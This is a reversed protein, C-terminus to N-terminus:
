WFDVAFPLEVTTKRAHAIRAEANARASGNVGQPVRHFDRGLVEAIDPDTLIMAAYVTTNAFKTGTLPKTGIPVMAQCHIWWWWIGVISYFVLRRTLKM